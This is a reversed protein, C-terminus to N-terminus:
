TKYLFSSNTLKSFTKLYSLSENINKFKNGLNSGIALLIKNM